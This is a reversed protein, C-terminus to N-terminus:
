LLRARKKDEERTERVQKRREKERDIGGEDDKEV